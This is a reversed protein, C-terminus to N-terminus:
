VEDGMPITYMPKRDEEIWNVIGAMVKRAAYDSDYAGLVNVDGAVDAGVVAFKDETKGTQKDTLDGREVSISILNGYNVASFDQTIITKTM